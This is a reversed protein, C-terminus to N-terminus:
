IRLSLPPSHVHVSVPLGFLKGTLGAILTQVHCVTTSFPRRTQMQRRLAIGFAAAGALFTLAGSVSLAIDGSGRAFDDWRDVTEFLPGAIHAALALLILLKLLRLTMPLSGDYLRTARRPLESERMFWPLRRGASAGHLGRSFEARALM